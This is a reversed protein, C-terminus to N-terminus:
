IVHRRAMPATTIIFFIIIVGYLLEPQNRNDRKLFVNSVRRSVGGNSSNLSCMVYVNNNCYIAMVHSGIRNLIGGGGGGGRWAIASRRAAVVAM